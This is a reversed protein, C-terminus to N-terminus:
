LSLGEKVVRLPWELLENWLPPLSNSLAMVERAGTKGVFWFDNLMTLLAFYHALIVLARPSSDEVLTVFHADVIVPFLILRRAVIEFKDKKEVLEYIGRIYNEASVYAEKTATDWLKPNDIDNRGKKASSLPQLLHAFTHTGITGDSGGIEWEHYTSHIMKSVQTAHNEGVMNWGIEYLHYHSKTIRLWEVPPCYPELVRQSLIFCAMLRMLNATMFLCDINEAQIHALEQRHHQFALRSYQEHQGWANKKDPASPANGELKSKHLAAMAFISYLLAKSKFAMRPIAKVYFEHATEKDFPISPGTETVYFHMLELETMRREASEAPEDADTSSMASSPKTAIDHRPQAVNPGSRDYVCDSGHRTCNRCCPKAEDCKVRRVRCKQCGTRSKRHFQRTVGTRIVGSLDLGDVFTPSTNPM